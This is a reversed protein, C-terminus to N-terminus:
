GARTLWRVRRNGRGGVGGHGDLDTFSCTRTFVVL